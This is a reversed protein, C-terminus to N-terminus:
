FVSVIPNSNTIKMQDAAVGRVPCSFAKPIIPVNRKIALSSPKLPRYLPIIGFKRLTIGATLM